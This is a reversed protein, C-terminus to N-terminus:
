WAVREFYQDMDSIGPVTMTIHENDRFIIYKDETATNGRRGIQFTFEVSAGENDWQVIRWTGSEPNSMAGMSASRQMTGDEQFVYTFGMGASANETQWTGVLTPGGTGVTDCGAMIGLPLGVALLLLLLLAYRM